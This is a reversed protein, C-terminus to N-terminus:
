QPQYLLYGAAEEGEKFTQLLLAGAGRAHPVGILRTAAGPRQGRLGAQTPGFIVDGWGDSREVREIRGLDQRTYTHVGQYHGTTIVLVRQSTIAYLTRKLHEQAAREATLKPLTQALSFLLLVVCFVLLLTVLGGSPLRKQLFFSILATIAAGIM